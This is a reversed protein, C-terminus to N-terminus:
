VVRSGHGAANEYTVLFKYLFSIIFKVLALVVSVNPDMVTYFIV